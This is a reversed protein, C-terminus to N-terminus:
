KDWSKSGLSGVYPDFYTDVNVWQEDFYFFKVGENVHEFCFFGRM